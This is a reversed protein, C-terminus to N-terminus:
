ARARSTCFVSNVSGVMYNSPPKVSPHMHAGKWGRNAASPCAGVEGENEAELGQPSATAQGRSAM